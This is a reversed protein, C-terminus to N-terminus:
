RGAAPVTRAVYDALTLQLDAKGEGTAPLARNVVTPVEDDMM